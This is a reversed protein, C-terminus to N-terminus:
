TMGLRARGLLQIALSRLQASRDGISIATLLHEAPKLDDNSFTNLAQLAPLRKYEAPDQLLRFLAPLAAEVGDPGMMQLRCIAKELTQNGFKVFYVEVVRLYFPITFEQTSVGFQDLWEANAFEGNLEDTSKPEITLSKAYMQVLETTSSSFGYRSDLAM